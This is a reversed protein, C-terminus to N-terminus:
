KFIVHRCKSRNIKIKWWRFRKELSTIHNQVNRHSIIHTLILPSPLLTLLMRPSSLTYSSLSIQLTYLIYLLPSLINGPLVRRFSSLPDGVMVQFFRDSLYSKFIFYYTFSFVGKLKCLLWFAM